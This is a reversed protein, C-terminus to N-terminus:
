FLNPIIERRLRRKEYFHPALQQLWEPDIKTIDRMYVDKSHVIETYVVHPPMKVTYLVSKPHVKLPIDGRVTKYVGTPALYAANPFLGMTITKLIVEKNTCSVVPMGFRKLVKFLQERLDTARKLAKYRLFHAACWHKSKSWESGGRNHFAYYVNLLTLLDGEEVEFKRKAIKAKDAQGPNYVFVNEVQLMAIITVIEQSCGMEGSSLLMKALTPHIPLESMQEGLPQSLEGREDLAGLAYLLEIAAILNRSPPASPFDFRVINDIGLAKLQLVPGCLDTRQLEPPTNLPLNVFDAEKCMRL